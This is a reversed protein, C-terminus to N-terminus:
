EDQGDESESKNSPSLCYPKFFDNGLQALRTAALALVLLQAVPVLLLVLCVLSVWPGLCFPCTLLTKLWSDSWEKVQNRKRTFVSGHQWIEIAQWAGLGAPIVLLAQAIAELTFPSIM